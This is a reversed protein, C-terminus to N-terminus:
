TSIVLDLEKTGSDWTAVVGHPEMPVAIYRHSEITTEIVHDADSLAQELDPALSTFPVAAMTNSGVGPHVLRDDIRGAERYDVVPTEVELDVRVLDVADEAVYRSEAVVLAVPDGVFVVRGPALPGAMPMTPWIVGWHLAHADGNLDEGVFVAVVGELAKAASVDISRIRGSPVESRVFAAYLQGPRRVDDVYRGHGTVLRYDEKRSVSQGTFRA